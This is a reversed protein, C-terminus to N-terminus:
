EGYTYKELASKECLEKAAGYVGLYEGIAGKTEQMVGESARRSIGRDSVHNRCAHYPKKQGGRM